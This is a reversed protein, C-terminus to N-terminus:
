QGRERHHRHPPQQQRQAPPPAAAPDSRADRHQTHPKFFDFPEAPDPDPQDPILPQPDPEGARWVRVDAAEDAFQVPAHHAPHALRRPVLFERRDDAQVDPAGPPGSPFRPLASGPPPAVVAPMPATEAESSRRRGAPRPPEKGPAQLAQQAQPAQPAEEPVDERDKAAGKEDQGDRERTRAFALGASLCVLPVAPLVYRHDFAAIFPPLVLLAVGCALPLLVIGGLRRWRAVLGGFGVLLLAGLFPGRLYGYEQYARMWEDYPEVILTEGSEGQYAETLETATKDQSAPKDPFSEISDPFVYASQPGKVPYERRTWDFIHAVDVAGAWLFDLPQAKIARMAFDGALENRNVGKIVDSNLPSNGSWIYQPPAKRQGLPEEPCLAAEVGPPDIKDCDAFTMTRAWLFVNSRTLGFTGYESRFWAAYAGLFLASALATALVARWGARRLVLCVLVIAILPLGITRTVTAAVLLFGALLAVWVPPRDRWLLLTVALVCLFTFLLDAMILHELQVQHVDFLVPVTLLAAAWGPLPTRRRLLAYVCVAIGLGILHQVVTVAQISELPRLAWLFLSYGSPRSELPRPNLAANLYAFSDAWFWIAPRYGLVALARLAGGALLAVLFVWHARLFGRTAM